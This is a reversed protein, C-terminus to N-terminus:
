AAVPSEKALTFCFASGMGVMRPAGSSITAAFVGICLGPWIRMGFLYAAVVLLNLLSFGFANNRILTLSMFRPMM